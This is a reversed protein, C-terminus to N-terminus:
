RKKKLREMFWGLKLRDLHGLKPTESLLNQRLTNENKLYLLKVLWLLGLKKMKNYFGILRIENGVKQQLYLQALNDIAHKQKALFETNNELGAHLLPNEIHLIDFGKRELDQAFLTDEHGYGKVSENFGIQGFMWKSVMFNNTKFTGFKNKNRKEAHVCERETGYLWHLYKEKEPPKPGYATGGYILRKPDSAYGVYNRFFNDQCIQSDGDMFLLWDYQAKQALLNRIRSRGINQGLEEYKFFPFTGIARNLEKYQQHSGDDVIIVESRIASVEIQELLQRAFPRLDSNYVPILVSLM